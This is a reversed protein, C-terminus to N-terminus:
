TFLVGLRIEIYNQKGINRVKSYIYRNGKSSLCLTNKQLNELSLIDKALDIVSSLEDCVGIAGDINSYPYNLHFHFGYRFILFM